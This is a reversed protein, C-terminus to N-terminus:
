NPQSCPKVEPLGVGWLEAGVGQGGHAVARLWACRDVEPGYYSGDRLDAEGTHLAMRVRLSVPRPGPERVLVQQLASAAALADSARAFVLFLSDGEGRSRVLAGDHRDALTAALADHQVLAARMAEPHQGWLRTTGEIDTLLFTVTGIPLSDM